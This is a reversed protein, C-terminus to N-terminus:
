IYCCNSSSGAIFQWVHEFSAGQLVGIFSSTIEVSQITQFIWSWTPGANGRDHPRLPFNRAFRILSSHFDILWLFHKCRRGAAGALGSLPSMPTADRSQRTVHDDDGPDKIFGGSPGTISQHFKVFWPRVSCVFSSGHAKKRKSLHKDPRQNICRM